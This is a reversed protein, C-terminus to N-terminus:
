PTFGGATQDAQASARLPRSARDRRRRPRATDAITSGGVRRFLGPDGGRATERPRVASRLRGAGPPPFGLAAVLIGVRWVKGARQM